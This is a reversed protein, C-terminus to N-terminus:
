RRGRLEDSVDSLLPGHATSRVTLTSTTGATSRSRRRACGCRAAAAATSGTDGEVKELYLDSVDPSLNTFGWAIDANHGIIVGPMGSFTFGAVDLPCDASVTRCHLGMQMWVGPMRSASTRTTPSCRSGPPPTSATSSGATPHRDRRRPRALRPLRRCGTASGALTAVADDSQLYAPRQPLRTGGTADQDFVGDVVAGQRVIPAFRQGDYEPYLEAVREPSNESLSLVRDIEDTMNGRLDWAMAKLWALSDATTWPEPEYDLGTARLVTYELGLEAASRQDLYANVGDAYAEFASRTDPDLLAM